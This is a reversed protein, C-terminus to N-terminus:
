ELTQGPAVGCPADFASRRLESYQSPIVGDSTKLVAVGVASAPDLSAEVVAGAPDSDLAVAAEM